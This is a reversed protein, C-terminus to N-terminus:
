QAAVAEVLTDGFLLSVPTGLKIASGGNPFLVYFNSDNVYRFEGVRADEPVSLTVGPEAVYLAPYNKADQLLAKAKVADVMKMRVDILGSAATLSILTIRLGYKQELRSQSIPPASPAVNVSRSPNLGRIVFFAAVAVGIVVIIIGVVLVPVITKFTRSQRIM